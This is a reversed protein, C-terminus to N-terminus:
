WKSLTSTFNKLICSTLLLFLHIFSSDAWKISLTYFISWFCIVHSPLYETYWFTTAMQCLYVPSSYTNFFFFLYSFFYNVWTSTSKDVNWLEPLLHKLLYADTFFPLMVTLSAWYKNPTPLSSYFYLLVEHWRFLSFVFLTKPLASNQIMHYCQWFVLKVTLCLFATLKCKSLSITSIKMKSYEIVKKKSDSNLFISFILPYVFNNTQHYFSLSFNFLESM